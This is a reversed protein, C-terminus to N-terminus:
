SIELYVLTQNLLRHAIEGFTIPGVMMGTTKGELGSYLYNLICNCSFEPRLGGPPLQATFATEYHDVPHAVRYEVGRFVPAYFSVTGTEQDIRQLSVNVNAGRETAVLPLLTDINREILYNAFNRRVGNVCCDDVVFGETEFSLVDGRGPEFLNLMGIQAHHGLPLEAHLVVAEDASGHRHHGDFIKPRIAGLESLDVGSVWGVITKTYLAPNQALESAYRYHVASLGPLIVISFGHAPADDLMENLQDARYRKISLTRPLASQREVFIRDRTFVGGKSTMFYPTTGGIWNGPPLQSLVSEDGALYLTAGTALMDAVAQPSILM